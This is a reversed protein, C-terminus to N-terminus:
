SAPDVGLTQCTETLQEVQGTAGDTTRLVTRGATTLDPPLGLAEGLEVAVELRGREPATLRQDAVLECVRDVDVAGGFRERAQDIAAQVEDDIRERAESQVQDALDQTRAQLDDGCAAGAVAVVVALVGLTFRGGAPGARRVPARGDAM